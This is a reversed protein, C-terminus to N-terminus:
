KCSKYKVHVIYLSPIFHKLHFHIHLLCCFIENMEVMHGFYPDMEWIEAKM